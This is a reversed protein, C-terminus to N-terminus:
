SKKKEQAALAFSEQCLSCLQDFPIEGNLRISIWSVKNM